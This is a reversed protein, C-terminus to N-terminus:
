RVDLLEVFFVLEEKEPIAVTKTGDELETSEKGAAGYALTHPIFFTASGGKGLLKLGEEWGPIVKNSGVRFVLPRGSSWTNEFQTGDSLFGSYHVDVIKIGKPKLDGGPRHIIYKLGSETSKLEDGLQGARYVKILAMTSDAVSQERAKVAALEADLVSKPKIKFLKIHYIFTDKPTVGPPLSKVDFTDLKQYVTLSDGPSMLLISEYDPPAPKAVKEASPIVIKRPKMMYYTSQVLSDNKFVIMHYSVEDGIGPKPGKNKTHLTYPYGSSTLQIKKSKNTCASFLACGMLFMLIRLSFKSSFDM